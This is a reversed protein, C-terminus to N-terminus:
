VEEDDRHSGLAESLRETIRRLDAEARPIGYATSPFDLPEQVRWIDEHRDPSYAMAPDGVAVWGIPVVTGAGLRSRLDRGARM